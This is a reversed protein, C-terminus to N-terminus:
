PVTGPDHGRGHDRRGPQHRPLALIQAAGITLAKLYGMQVLREDAAVAQALEEQRLAQHGSVQRHRARPAQGPARPPVQGPRYGAQSPQYLAEYPDQDAGYGPPGAQYGPPGAQYGSAAAQYGPRAPQYGAPGAAPM